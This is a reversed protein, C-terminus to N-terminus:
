SIAAPAAKRRERWRRFTRNLAVTLVFAPFVAILAASPGWLRFSEPVVNAGDTVYTSYVVYDDDTVKVDVRQRGDAVAAVSFHVEPEFGGIVPVVFGGKPEPLRLNRLPPPPNKRTFEPWRLLEYQPATAPSVAPQLAVLPFLRSPINGPVYREATFYTTAQSLLTVLAFFVALQLAFTGTRILFRM